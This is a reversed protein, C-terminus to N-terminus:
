QHIRETQEQYTRSALYVPSTLPFNYMVNKLIKMFNYIKNSNLKDINFLVIPYTPLNFQISHFPEDDMLLMDFLNYFYDIVGHVDSDFSQRVRSDRDIYNLYFNRGNHTGVIIQDDPFNTRRQIFVTLIAM